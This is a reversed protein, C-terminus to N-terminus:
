ETLKGLVTSYIGTIHGSADVLNVTFTASDARAMGAAAINAAVAQRTDFSLALFKPTVQASATVYGAAYNVEGLWGKGQAEVTLAEAEANKM